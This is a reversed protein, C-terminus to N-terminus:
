LFCEDLMMILAVLLFAYEEGFRTFFSFISTFFPTRINEFFNLIKMYGGYFIPPSKGESMNM